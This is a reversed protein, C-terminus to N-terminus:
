RICEDRVVMVPVKSHRVVNGAVSGLLLRDLGTKGLTGMVIIDMENEEAYRILEDSPNGELLVSEVNIGKMEGLNKVYNVAQQGQTKWAEQISEWYPNVGMFYDGDMSLYATSVVYVAYVTGSGLQALEIGKDVALRSCDSGDTAIVIKKFNVTGM